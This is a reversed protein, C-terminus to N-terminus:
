NNFLEMITFRGCSMSAPVTGNGTVRRKRVSDIDRDIWYVAQERGWGLVICSPQKQPAEMGQPKHEADWAAYADLM